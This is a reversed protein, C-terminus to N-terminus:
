NSHNCGTWPSQIPFINIKKTVAIKARRKEKGIYQIGTQASFLPYKSDRKFPSKEGKRWVVPVENENLCPVADKV